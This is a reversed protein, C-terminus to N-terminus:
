IHFQWNRKIAPSSHLHIQKAHLGAHHDIQVSRLMQSVGFSVPAVPPFIRQQLLVSIEDQAKQRFVSAFAEIVDQVGDHGPQNVPPFVPPALAQCALVTQGM